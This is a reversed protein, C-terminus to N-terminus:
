FGSRRSIMPKRAPAMPSRKVPKPATKKAFAPPVAPKPSVTKKAFSKPKDKMAAPM